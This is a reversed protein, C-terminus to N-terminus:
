GSTETIIQKSILEDKSEKESKLNKNENKLKLDIEELTKKEKM